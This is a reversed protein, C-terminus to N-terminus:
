PPPPMLLYENESKESLSARVQFAASHFFSDNFTSGDIRGLVRTLKDWNGNASAIAIGCGAVQDPCTCDYLSAILYSYLLHQM